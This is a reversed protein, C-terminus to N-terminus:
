IKTNQLKESRHYVRLSLVVQDHEVKRHPAVKRCDISNASESQDSTFINTRHEPYPANWQFITLIYVLGTSVAKGGGTQTTHHVKCRRPHVLRVLPM